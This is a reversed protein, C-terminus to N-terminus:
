WFHDRFLIKLYKSIIQDQLSGFNESRVTLTWPFDVRFEIEADFIISLYM